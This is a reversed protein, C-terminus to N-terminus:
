KWFQWWKKKKAAELESKVTQIDRIVNMLRKDREPMKSLEENLFEINERQESSQNELTKVRELLDELAMYTTTEDTTNTSDTKVISEVHQVKNVVTVVCEKITQNGKRHLELMDKFLRVQEETYVIQKGEKNFTIGAKTFHSKYTRLTAEPVELIKALDANSYKREQPVVRLM